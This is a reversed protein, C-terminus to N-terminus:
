VAPSRFSGDQDRAVKTVAIIADRNLPGYIHPYRGGPDEIVLPATLRATEIHLLVYPRPDDRYHRNGTAAVEVPDHTTHIFGDAAFESPLYPTGPDAAEWVAAPVLHYTRAPHSVM